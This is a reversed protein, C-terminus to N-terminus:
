NECRKRWPACHKEHELKEREEEAKELASKVKSFNEELLASKKTAKGRETFGNAM